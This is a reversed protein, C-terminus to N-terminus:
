WGWPPPSTAPLATGPCLTLASGEALGQSTDGGQPAGHPKALLHLTEELCLGPHLALARGPEQQKSTCWQTYWGLIASPLCPGEQEGTSKAMSLSLLMRGRPNKPRQERGVRVGARSGWLGPLKDLIAEQHLQRLARPLQPM